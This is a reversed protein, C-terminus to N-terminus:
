GIDERHYKSSEVMDESNYVIEVRKGILGKPLLIRGCENQKSPQRRVIKRLIRKTM